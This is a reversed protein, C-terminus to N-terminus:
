RLDEQTTELWKAIPHLLGLGQGGITSIAEQIQDCMDLADRFKGHETYCKLLYRMAFIRDPHEGDDRAASGYRHRQIVDLFMYEAEDYRKQRVLVQALHTKGMLTGFHNEGLNRQAVPLAKRMLKEAKATDGMASKIRALNCRALLTWPQETGLRTSIDQYGANGPTNSVRRKTTLSRHVRMHLYALVGEIPSTSATASM